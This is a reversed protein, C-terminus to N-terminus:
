VKGAQPASSRVERLQGLNPLLLRPSACPRMSSGPAELERQNLTVGGGLRDGLPVPALMRLLARSLQPHVLLAPCFVEPPRCSVVITDVVCVAGRGFGFALATRLAVSM